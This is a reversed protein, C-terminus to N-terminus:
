QALRRVLPLRRPATLWAGAVALLPLALTVLALWLWPVEVGPVPLGAARLQQAAWGQQLLSISLVVGLVLGLVVGVGVGLVAVVAAQAGSVARGVRRTAGVAALTALDPRTEAAALGISVWTAGLAVVSAIGLLVLVVVDSPQRPPPQVSVSAQSTEGRVLDAWAPDYDADVQAVAGVPVSILGPTEEVLTAPLIPPAGPQWTQVHAPAVLVIPATDDPLGPGAVSIEVHATGDDWVDDERSVVISGQALAAAAAAGEEGFGLLATSTGDDVVSDGAGPRYWSMGYSVGACRPDGAAAEVLEAFDAESGDYGETPCAREPRAQSRAGVWGEAPLDPVTLLHVTASGAVDLVDATRALGSEVALAVADDALQTPRGDVWVDPARLLVTGVGVDSSWSAAQVRADSVFYVSAATAAAVAALVAAVAPVTRSRQRVADRLAFRGAPGLRPALRAVLTLLGGAALVVGLELVLVGGALTVAHDRLGGVLAVLTGGAALAVGIWPTRRRPAAESRRGALAAAVDIRATTRSPFWSALAALVTALAVAAPVVWWPVLFAPMPHGAVRLVLGVLAAVGLGAAAGLVGATAGIVVGSALVIRRLDRRDGGAAGVLALQRVQRRAGVAFAPGILLVVEVVAIAAVAAGAGLTTRDVYGAGGGPFATHFPVEARNPPHLAVSRSDVETGIANLAVVDEWRVPRDGLVFWRSPGRGSAPNAPSAASAADAATPVVVAADPLNRVDLLGVVTVQAGDLDVVDGVDVRLRQAVDPSLAAERATTPLRGERVTYVQAVADAELFTVSTLGIDREGAGVALSEVRVPAVDQEPIGLTEAVARTSPDRGGDDAGVTGGSRLDPTQHYTCGGCGVDRVVAQATPGAQAVFRTLPTGLTSLLFTALFVGAVVPLAVMATAIWTRRRHRWADRRAMRLAVRWRM